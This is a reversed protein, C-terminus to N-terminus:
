SHIQIYGPIKFIYIVYMHFIWCVFQNRFNKVRSTHPVFKSNGAKPFYIGVGPQYPGSNIAEKLHFEKEGVTNQQCNKGLLSINFLARAQSVFVQPVITDTIICSNMQTYICYKQKMSTLICISCAAM